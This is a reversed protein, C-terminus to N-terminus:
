GYHEGFEDALEKFYYHVLGQQAVGNVRLVGDVLEWTFDKYWEEVSSGIIAQKMHVISPGFDPTTFNEYECLILALAYILDTNPQEYMGFKLQTMVNKFQDPDFLSKVTAFFNQAEFSARWYTIANYTDPLSNADFIKRYYRQESRENHLNRCGTSVWLPFQRFMPWWHDIPGSCLMDAELKITEHFPSAYFAQWDNNLKWQENSTPYPFPIVFDFIDADVHDNTIIAVKATPHFHKISKCLTTACSVYDTTDNNDALILYGKDAKYRSMRM